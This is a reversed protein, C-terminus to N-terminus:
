YERNKNDRHIQESCKDVKLIIGVAIMVSLLSSGGFSYFPLTLGKPPLLGMAMGANILVQGFLVVGFGFVMYSLRLQRRKLASHSIKMIAGIILAQLLLVFFVGFFGLEEGTISLLFDTHAEPLHSLKLISNGYGVGNWEGRAFASLSRALQFDRHSTDDFPNWYSLIRARRYDALWVVVAILVSVAGAFTFFDRKPVGSVFLVVSASAIVVAVSGFDPHLLFLGIVPTYWFLLKWSTWMNQRVEGSRRVVYDSIVLVMLIKTFEATQLNFFGLDLWRRSGNIKDAVLLTLLLLFVIVVWACVLVPFKFYLNLPLRYVVYAATGGIGIYLLQMWFFRLEPMGYKIAVPVSASIIMLLSMVLLLFLSVMLTTRATPMYASQSIREFLTPM